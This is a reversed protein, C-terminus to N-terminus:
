KLAAKFKTKFEECQKEVKKAANVLKGKPNSGMVLIGPEKLFPHERVAAAEGGEKWVQNAIVGTLTTSEGQIEVKLKNKTNEIVDIKM